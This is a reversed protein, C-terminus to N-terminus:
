PYRYEELQMTGAENRRLKYGRRPFPLDVADHLSSLIMFSDSRDVALRLLRLACMLYQGELVDLVGDLVSVRLPLTGALACAVLLRETYSLTDLARLRIGPLHELLIPWAPDALRLPCACQGFASAVYEACSEPGALPEALSASFIPQSYGGFARYLSQGDILVSGAQPRQRGAILDCLSSKGSGGPGQFLYVGPDPLTLSLGDLLLGGGRRLRIDRLEIV